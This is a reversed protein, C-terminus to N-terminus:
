EKVEAQKCYEEILKDYERKLEEDGYSTQWFRQLSILHEVQEREFLYLHDFVVRRRKSRNPHATGSFRCQCDKIEYNCIPCKM